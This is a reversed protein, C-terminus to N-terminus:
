KKCHRAQPTATSYRLVEAFEERQPWAADTVIVEVKTCNHGANNVLGAVIESAYYEMDAQTWKAPVIIYPTVCGLEATVHKKCPPERGEEQLVYYVASMM